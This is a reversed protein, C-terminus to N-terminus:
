IFTLVKRRIYEYANLYSCNFLHKLGEKDEESLRDSKISFKNGWQDKKDSLRRKDGKWLRKAEKLDEDYIVIEGNDIKSIFRDLIKVRLEREDFPFSSSKIQNCIQCSAVLKKTHTQTYAYPIYHDLRPRLWKMNGKHIIAISFPLSCYYCKGRQEQILDNLKEKKNIINHRRRSM